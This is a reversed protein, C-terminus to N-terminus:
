EAGSRKRFLVDDEALEAELQVRYRELDDDLPQETEVNTSRLKTASVSSVTRWDRLLLIVLGIGCLLFAMPVLWVLLSFGQWPPSWLIQNGYRQVFYQIVDQESRGAQLQQRIVARMQQALTSPSDAVSEGQCILCKLQAAVRQTRADLTQQRPVVILLTSWVAAIVALAVLVIHLWHNSALGVSQRKM